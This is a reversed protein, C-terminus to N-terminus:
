TLMVEFRLAIDAHLSWADVFILYDHCCLDHMVNVRSSSTLSVSLDITMYISSLM